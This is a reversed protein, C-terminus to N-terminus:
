FGYGVSFHLRPQWTDYDFAVDVNVPGIPSRWRAGVGSGQKLRFDGWADAANGADTFVAAGWQPTFSYVVEASVLAMVRGGVIAGNQAVGLSDYAYGRVTQDGGTRFLLDDPVNERAAGFVQGAQARLVTSWTRDFRHLWTGKALVRAINQVNVPGRPGAALEISAVYGRTPSLPVDLRRRTYSYAGVLARRNNPELGPLQQRDAFLQLAWSHQNNKDPSTLRASTNLKDNIESLLDTREFHAGVSPLWGTFVGDFAHAPLGDRVAPFYLDSGIGKTNRDLKLDSELRWDQGLFQRNLWKVRVNPGADTSMGVGFSLKKRENESLDVRVPVLTPHEPDVEITTFASRYYGTDQLRAQLENLAEQSYPTGPVIPNLADIRSRSYRDMGEIQLPGFTFAPGSDAAVNLTVSSTGPDVLAQSAAIRAAPYDRNLLGKLLNGKADDWAGQRFRQGAKLSWQRRLQEMRRAMEPNDAIAGQFDIKVAGITAPTGLEISFRAVKSGAAGELSGEVRPSFYGETALLDRIQQPTTSVRRQLEDASVEKDGAREIISLNKELLDQYDGAGNLQVAYTPKQALAAASLGAGAVVLAFSFFLRRLVTTSHQHRAPLPAGQSACM